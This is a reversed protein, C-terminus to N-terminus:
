GGPDFIVGWYLGSEKIGSTWINDNRKMSPGRKTVECYTSEKGNGHTIKIQQVTVDDRTVWVNKTSGHMNVLDNINTTRTSIMTTDIYYFPSMMLSHFEELALCMDPVQMPVMTFRKFTNTSFDFSVNVVLITNMYSIDDECVVQSQNQELASRMEIPFQVGLIFYM